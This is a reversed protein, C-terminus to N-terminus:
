SGFQNVIGTFKLMHNPKATFVAQDYYCRTQWGARDQLQILYNDDGPMGEGFNIDSSGIRKLLHPQLMFAESAKVMPHAKLKINGGLGSYVIEQTGLSIGRKTDEAYRRLAAHDDNLDQWTYPNLYVCVDGAGARIFRKAQGGLMAHLTMQGGVPLTNGRFSGYVTSDIGFLTGSNRCIRDLGEFSNEVSKYLTIVDGPVITGLNAGGGGSDVEVEITRNDVDVVGMEIAATTNRQSAPDPDVTGTLPLHVDIAVGEAEVFVGPAWSAASVTIVATDGTVAISEITGLSSNGYLMQTELAFGAADKMTGIMEDFADGFAEVNSGASSVANNSINDRLIFESGVVTADETQGARAPNLLFADGRSAGANFTFGSPRRVRVPHHYAKGIKDRQSFKIDEQVIAAKPIIKALNEKTYREKFFGNFTTLTNFENAM